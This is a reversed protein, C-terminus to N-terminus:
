PTKTVEQRMKISEILVRHALRCEAWKINNDVMTKLNESLVSDPSIFVGSECETMLTAPFDLTKASEVAVPNSACGTLLALTLLTYKM